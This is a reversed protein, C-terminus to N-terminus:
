SRYQEPAILNIIYDQFGQNNFINGQLYWDVNEDKGTEAQTLLNGFSVGSFTVAHEQPSQDHSGGRAPLQGREM